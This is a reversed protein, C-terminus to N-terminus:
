QPPPPLAFLKNTGDIAIQRAGIRLLWDSIEQGRGDLFAHEHVLAMTAMSHRVAKTAADLDKPIGVLFTARKMYDEPFFGSYGNVIPRRHYGAYFAAQIEYAPEGFPFEILVPKSPSDRILTYLPSVRPGTVMAVANPNLGETALRTNTEMPAFWSEALIAACAVAVCIRGITRGRELLVAAGLGGLIALCLEVLMIFRAPARLGDFGPVYQYLLNFPGNGITHGKVTIHPGLALLACAIGAVWFFSLVGSRESTEVDRPLGGVLWAVVAALAACALLLWEIGSVVISSEGAVIAFNGKFLLLGIVGITLILAPATFGILTSRWAPASRMSRGRVFRWASWGIAIAALVVITVGPFGEGEPKAYGLNLNGWLHSQGPPVFFSHTDASFLLNEGYTRVGIEGSRRVEFYPTVFPWTFVAVGFAAIVLARWARWDALLRRKVMEYACYAGAVPAFFLMFYGCSLNQLLLAAAGGALPRVRRTVFYRRFGYLAFPMWQCSLVQLHPVQALRYPAYAFALGALFAALPRGTLERVLLYTGLGALVFTSLFLLNYCLIVNGTAAYIPLAQLMQPTLHESYAITLRAPYFINGNWYEHLAHFDGRLFALVQGSTWMLIWCNFAPDGFDGAIRTPLHQVLPWTMVVAVASYVLAMSWSSPGNESEM